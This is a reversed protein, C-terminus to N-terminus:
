NVRTQRAAASNIVLCNNSEEPPVKLSILRVRGILLRLFKIASCGALSAEYKAAGTMIIQRTTLPLVFVRHRARIPQFGLTKSHEGEPLRKTAVLQNSVERCFIESFKKASIALSPPEGAKTARLITQGSRYSRGLVRIQVHTKLLIWPHERCLRDYNMPKTEDRARTAFESAQSCPSTILHIGKGVVEESFWNAM